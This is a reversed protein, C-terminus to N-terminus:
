KWHRYPKPVVKVNKAASSVKVSIPVNDDDDDQKKVKNTGGVSPSSSGAKSLCSSDVNGDAPVEKKVRSEKAAAAASKRGKLMSGLSRNDDDQEQVQGTKVPMSDASPM